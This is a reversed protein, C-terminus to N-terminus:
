RSGLICGRGVLMRRQAMGVCPCCCGAGFLQGVDLGFTVFIGSMKGRKMRLSMGESGGGGRESVVLKFEKLDDWKGAFQCM